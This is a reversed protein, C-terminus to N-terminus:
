PTDDDLVVEKAHGLTRFTASLQPCDTGAGSAGTPRDTQPETRKETLADPLRIKLKGRQQCKHRTFEKM